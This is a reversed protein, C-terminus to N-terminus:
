GHCRLCSEGYRRYGNFTKLDVKGDTVTYPKAADAASAHASLVLAAGFALTALRHASSLCIMMFEPCEARSSAPRASTSSPAGTERVMRLGPNHCFFGRCGPHAAPAM